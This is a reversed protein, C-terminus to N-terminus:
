LLGFSRKLKSDFDKCDDKLMQLHQKVAQPSPHPASFGNLGELTYANERPDWM